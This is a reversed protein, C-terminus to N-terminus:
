KRLFLFNISFVFTYAFLFLDCGGGSFQILQLKISLGGYKSTEPVKTSLYEKLGYCDQAGVACNNETHGFEETTLFGM